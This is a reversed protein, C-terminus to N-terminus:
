FKEVFVRHKPRFSVTCHHALHELMLVTLVLLLVMGIGTVFMDDKATQVAQICQLVVMDHSM